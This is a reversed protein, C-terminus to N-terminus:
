RIGAKEAAEPDIQKLVNAASERVQESGLPRGMIAPSGADHDELAQLLLPVAEKAGSGLKGLAYIASIRLDPRSRSLKQAIFPLAKPSIQAMAQIALSAVEDDADDAAQELLPIAREAAPGMEGLFVAAAWRFKATRDRIGEELVPLVANTDKNIKWLANAAYVRVTHSTSTLSPILHPIARRASDGINGLAIASHLRITGDRDSLRETLAPVAANAAQGIERLAVVANMRADRALIPAKLKQQIRAPLKPWLTVYATNLLSDKIELAAILHPVVEDAVERIVQAANQDIRDTVEQLWLSLPRGKVIRQSLDPLKPPTPTRMSIVALGLVVIAGMLARLRKGKM